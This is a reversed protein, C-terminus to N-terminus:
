KVLMRRRLAGVDIDIDIGALIRSANGRSPRRHYTRICSQCSVRASVKRFDRTIHVCEHHIVYDLTRTVAVHSVQRAFPAFASGRLGFSAWPRQDREKITAPPNPQSASALFSPSLSPLSESRRLISVRKARHLFPWQGISLRGLFSFSFLELLLDFSYSARNTLLCRKRSSSRM